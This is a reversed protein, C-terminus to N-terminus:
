IAPPARTIGVQDGILVYASWFFPHAFLRDSPSPATGSHTMRWIDLLRADAVDPTTNDWQMLAASAEAYSLARIWMQADALAKAPDTQISNGSSNIFMRELLLRTAIEHVPWLTVLVSTAGAHLLARSLGLIEDGRLIRGRGTECAALVALDADMHLEAMIEDARLNGDELTLHSNMPYRQDYQAHGLFCLVRYDRAQTMLAQRVAHQGVLVRDTANCALAWAAGQMHRLRSDSPSIALIGAKSSPPRRHCYGLLITACPTYVVRRGALLPQTDSGYPGLAGIPLYHLPGTATFYITQMPELLHRIPQVLLKYMRDFLRSPLLYGTEPVPVLMGRWLGAPDLHEALHSQLWNITVSPLQVAQVDGTTVVLAWPQGSSDSTYSVLASAAPLQAQVEETTMPALRTLADALGRSKAREVANFAANVNNHRLHFNVPANYAADVVSRYQAQITPATLRQRISEAIGVADEYAALAASWREQRELVHGYATQAEVLNLADEQDTLLTIAEQLAAAAASVRQQPLYVRAALDTLTYGRAHLNDDEADLFSHFAHEADDYRGQQAYVKGRGHWAKAVERSGKEGHAAALESACEHYRLAENLREPDLRRDDVGQEVQYCLSIALNNYVKSLGLTNDVAKYAAEAQRYIRESEQWEGLEDLLNALEMLTRPRQEPTLEQELLRRLMLEARDYLHREMLLLAHYHQHAHQHAGFPSEQLQALLQECEDLQHEDVAILIRERWSDLYNPDGFSDM